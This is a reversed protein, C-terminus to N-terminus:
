VVKEVSRADIGSAPRRDYENGVLVILGEVMMRNAASEALVVTHLIWSPSASRM